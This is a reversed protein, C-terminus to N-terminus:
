EAFEEELEILEGGADLHKMCQEHQAYTIDPFAKACRKDRSINDYAWLGAVVFLFIILVFFDAIFDKIDNLM